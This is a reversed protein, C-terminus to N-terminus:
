ESYLYKEIARRIVESVSIGGAQARQEARSKLASGWRVSEVTEEEGGLPSRGRGRRTTSLQDETFGNEAEQVLFEIAEGTIPEGGSMYGDVRRTM